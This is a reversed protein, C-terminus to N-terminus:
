HNVPSIVVSNIDLFPLQQDTLPRWLPNAAAFNDTRWVGGNVSGAYAINANTPDVAIAEVAGTAANGQAPLEVLGNTIIGPGQEVWTAPAFRDELREVLLFRRHPRRVARPLRRQPHAVSMLNRGLHGDICCLNVTARMCARFMRAHEFSRFS